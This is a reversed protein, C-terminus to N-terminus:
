LGFGFGFQPSIFIFGPRRYRRPYGCYDYYPDCYSPYYSFNSYYDDDDYFRRYHRRHRRHGYYKHKKYRRKHVKEVLSSTIESVAPDAGILGAALPSASTPQSLFLLGVTAAAALLYKPNRM